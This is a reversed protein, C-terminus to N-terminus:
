FVEVLAFYGADLLDVGELVADVVEGGALDALATEEL